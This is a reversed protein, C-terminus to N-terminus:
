AAKAAALLFFDATLFPEFFSSSRSSVGATFLSSLFPLLTEIKFSSASTDLKSRNTGSDNEAASLYLNPRQKVKPGTYSSPRSLSILAALTRYSTILLRSLV